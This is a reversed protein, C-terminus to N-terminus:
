RLILYGAPSIPQLKFQLGKQSLECRGQNFHTSMFYDVETRKQSVPLLVEELTPTLVAGGEPGKLSNLM